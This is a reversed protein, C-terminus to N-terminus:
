REMQFTDIIEGARTVFQFTIKNEEAVILMAGYDGNFRVQSGEIPEGINYIPGGGLGNVFYPLENILLREYHHDHGTVVATAGWEKFPWRMWDSSGHQGSSYPAAHFVVLKWPAASSALASQLWAAQQSSMGIGDPERWDSNLAFVHVSDLDVEYYRENGPLTFYDFYPKADDTDYDHNGLTPFFRNTNSGDGYSGRYPFIFDHYYQGINVDISEYAGLPYNNDGTTLVYDVNWGKILDAVDEEAKGAAGYDGIIAIRLPASPPKTPAVTIAPPLLTFVPKQKPTTPTPTPPASNQINSTPLLTPSEPPTSPPTATIGNLPTIDAPYTTLPLRCASLLGVSLLLIILIIRAPQKGTTIQRRKNQQSLLSKM